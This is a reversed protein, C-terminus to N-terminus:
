RGGEGDCRTSTLDVGAAALIAGVNKRANTIGVRLLLSSVAGVLALVVGVVCAVVGGGSCLGWYTLIVGVALLSYGLRLCVGLRQIAETQLRAEKILDNRTWDKTDLPM